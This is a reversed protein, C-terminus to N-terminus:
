VRVPLGKEGAPIFLVARRRVFDPHRHAARGAPLHPPFPPRLRRHVRRGGLHGAAYEVARGGGPARPGPAADDAGRLRYGRRYGRCHGDGPFGHGAGGLPAPEREPGPPLGPKRGAALPGTTQPSIFVPRQGAAAGRGAPARGVVAGTRRQGSDLLCDNQAQRGFGVPLGAPQQHGDGAFLRGRRGAPAAHARHLGQPVGPGGGAAHRGAGRCLRVPAAPVARHRGGAAVRFFGPQGGALRGVGHGPHLPRGAPQQGGGPHPLRQLGPGRGGPLGPDGAAPAPAGRCVAGPRRPQLGAAGPPAHFLRDRFQGRVARGGARGGHAAAAVCVPRGNE